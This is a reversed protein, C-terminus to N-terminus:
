PNIQLWTPIPQMKLKRSANKAVIDSLGNSRNQKTALAFGQELLVKQFAGEFDFNYDGEEYGIEKLLSNFVLIDGIVVNKNVIKFIKFRVSSININDLFPKTPDVVDKEAKTFLILYDIKKEVFRLRYGGCIYEVLNKSEQKRNLFNTKYNTYADVTPKIEFYNLAEQPTSFGLPNANSCYAKYWLPKELEDIFAAGKIKIPPDYVIFNDAVLKNKLLAKQAFLTCSLFLCITIVINKM